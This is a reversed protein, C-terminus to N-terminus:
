MGILTNFWFTMLGYLTSFKVRELVRRGGANTGGAQGAGARREGGPMPEMTGSAVRCQNRGGAAQCQNCIHTQKCQNCIKCKPNRQMPKM